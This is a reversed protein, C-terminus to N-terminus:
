NDNSDGKEQLYGYNKVGLLRELRRLSKNVFSIEKEIQQKREILGDLFPTRINELGLLYDVSVGLGKAIPILTEIRPNKNQGTILANLSSTSTNTQRCLESQTIKKEILLDGIREGLTTKVKTM